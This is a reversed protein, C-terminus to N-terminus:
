RTSRRRLPELAELLALADSDSVDEPEGLGACINRVEEGMGDLCQEGTTLHLELSREANWAHLQRVLVRKALALTIPDTRM